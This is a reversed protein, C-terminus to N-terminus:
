DVVVWIVCNLELVYFPLSYFIAGNYDVRTHTRSCCFGVTVIGGCIFLSCSSDSLLSAVIELHIGEKNSLYYLTDHTIYLAIAHQNILPEPVKGTVM